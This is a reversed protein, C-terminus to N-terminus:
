PFPFSMLTIRAANVQVSPSRLTFSYVRFPTHTWHFSLECLLTFGAPKSLLQIENLPFIPQLAQEMSFLEFLSLLEIIFSVNASRFPKMHQYNLYLTIQFKSLLDKSINRFIKYYLNLGILFYTIAKHVQM